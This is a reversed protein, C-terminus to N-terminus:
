AKGLVVWFVSGKGDPNDDVGVSGKHIEVIRKVIALGLGTGKIGKKDARKFRDFVLSKSEDPIGEGEDTVMVKFSKGLDEIELKVTSGGSQIKNRQM